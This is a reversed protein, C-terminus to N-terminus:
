ANGTSARTTRATAVIPAQLRYLYEFAGNRTPAAKILVPRGILERMLGEKVGLEVRIPDRPRLPVERVFEVVAEEASHKRKTDPVSSFELKRLGSRIEILRM